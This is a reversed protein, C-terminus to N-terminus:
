TPKNASKQVATLGGTRWCAQRRMGACTEGTGCMGPARMQRPGACTELGCMDRATPAPASAAEVRGQQAGANKPQDPAFRPLGGVAASEHPRSGPLITQTPAVGVMPHSAGTPPRAVKAVKAAAKAVKAVDVRADGCTTRPGSLPAHLRSPSVEITSLYESRPRALHGSTRQERHINHLYLRGLM